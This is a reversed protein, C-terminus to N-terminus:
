DNTQEKRIKYYYTSAVTKPMGIAVFRKVIAGRTKITSNKYIRRAQDIMPETRKRDVALEYYYTSATTYAIDPINDLFLRIVAKRTKVPATAYLRRARAMKSLTSEDVEQPAEQEVLLEIHSKANPFFRALIERSEKTTFARRLYSFMTKLARMEM